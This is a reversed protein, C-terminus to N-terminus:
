PLGAGLLILKILGYSAPVVAVYSLIAFAIAVWRSGEIFKGLPKSPKNPNAVTAPDGGRAKTWQHDHEVLQESMLRDQYMGIWLHNLYALFMAAITSMIGVFFSITVIKLLCHSPPVPSPQNHLFALIAPLALTVGGGHLVILTKLATGAYDQATKTAHSILTRAHELISERGQLQLGFATWFDPHGGSPPTEGSSM